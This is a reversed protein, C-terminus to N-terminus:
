ITWICAAYKMEFCFIENCWDGRRSREWCSLPFPFYSLALSRHSITMVKPPSPRMLVCRWRLTERPLSLVPLTCPYRKSTGWWAYGLGFGRAPLEQLLPDESGCGGTTWLPSWVDWVLASDSTPVILRCVLVTTTMSDQWSTITMDFSQRDWPLKSHILM